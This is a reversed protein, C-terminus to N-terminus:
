LYGIVEQSGKVFCAVLADHFHDLKLKHAM